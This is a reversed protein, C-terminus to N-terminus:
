AEVSEGGAKEELDTERAKLVAMFQRAPTNLLALFTGPVKEVLGLIQARLEDKSLMDALRESSEGALAEGDIYGGKFKLDLTPNDKIFERLVKASLAPEENHWVLATPGVLLPGMVEAPTDKLALRVLTNKAVRCKIGKDRFSKRLRNVVEVEMGSLDTLVISAAQSLEGRLEEIMQEKQARDM